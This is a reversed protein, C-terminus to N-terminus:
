SLAHEIANVLAEDAPDTKSPFRQLLDGDRSVLFKEFNWKVDEHPPEARSVLWVYLPHRDPGLCHIKQFLQFSVGYNVSCFQEIEEMTGPEQEGFDNCPFALIRLGRNRYTRYLQELGEYQPTFGCASAVNVILLVDGKYEGLKHAEGRAPQVAIDYISNAMKNARWEEGILIVSKIRQLM